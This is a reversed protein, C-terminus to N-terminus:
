IRKRKLQQLNNYNKLYKRYLRYHTLCLGKAKHKNECNKIGCKRNRTSGKSWTNKGILSKSINYKHTESLHTNLKANRMKEKTKNSVIIGKRPGIQGNKFMTSKCKEYQENSMKIGKNWAKQGKHAKSIRKKQEDTRKMMLSHSGGGDRLNLGYKTNFCQFLDVYYKELENLQEPLCRHLIEFKHKNHGYKKLSSYLLRQKICKEYKYTNFRKKVDVSQGIYIRNSPSTIKYIACIKKM